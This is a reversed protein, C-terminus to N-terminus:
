LNISTTGNNDKKKRSRIECIGPIGAANVSDLESDDLEVRYRRETERIMSGLKENASYRQYDFLDKLAAM